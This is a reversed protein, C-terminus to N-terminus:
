VVSRPCGNPRKINKNFILKQNDGGDSFGIGRPWVAFLRLILFENM